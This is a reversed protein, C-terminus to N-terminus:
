GNRQRLVGAFSFYPMAQVGVPRHAPRPAGDARPAAFGTAALAALALVAAALLSAAPKPQLPKPHM